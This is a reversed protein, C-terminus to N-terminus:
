TELKVRSPQFESGKTVKYSKSSNVNLLKRKKLADVVKKDHAELDSNSVYASLQLKEDDQLNEAIRTVSVKDAELRVWKNKMAKAFGIKAILDGVKAEVEAKATVVNLALSSAYQYEPTGHDAYGKGEETLEIKKREIVELVVYDDVVLSKLAADITQASLDATVLAETDAISGQQALLTLITQQLKEEPTQDTM